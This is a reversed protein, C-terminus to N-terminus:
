RPADPNKIADAIEGWGDLITALKEVSLKELTEKPEMMQLVILAKEIKKQGANIKAGESIISAILSEATPAGNKKEEPPKPANKKEDALRQETISPASSGVAGEPIDGPEDMDIVVGDEARTQRSMEGAEAAVIANNVEISRPMYKLVQLLVVKRAYMEPHKYSYHSSGVKNYRDRHAWVRAMRWAEIVPQESGNVKGCAYVWEMMEERGHNMGPIHHCRPHSGLQFDFEDGNFVAGTWATARGSNNLLGVLGQWGPVFQCLMLGNKNDRYPVLYGQGAIGPELGIQSAVVISALISHATCERLKPTTSFSTLALRLMRDPKLHAPLAAAIVGRAKDLYSKLEQPNNYVVVKSQDKETNAM